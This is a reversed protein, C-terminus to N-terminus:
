APKAPNALPDGCGDDRFKIVRINGSVSPMMFCQRIKAGSDHGPKVRGDLSLKFHGTNKQIAAEPAAM